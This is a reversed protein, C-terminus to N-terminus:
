VRGGLTTGRRCTEFVLDRLKSLHAPRPTTVGAEWRHITGQRSVGIKAALKTQSLRLVNIRAFRIERAVAMDPGGAVARRMKVPERKVPSDWAGVDMGLTGAHIAAIEADLTDDPLVGFDDHWDLHATLKSGRRM